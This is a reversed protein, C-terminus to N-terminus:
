CFIILDVQNMLQFQVVIEVQQKQNVTKMMRAVMLYHVMILHHYEIRMVMMMLGIRKKLMLIENM